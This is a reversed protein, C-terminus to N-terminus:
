GYKRPLRPGLGTLFERQLEGSWGAFEELTIQQTTDAGVLTKLRPLMAAISYTKLCIFVADQVGFDTPEDSARLAFVERKEQEILTLGNKRLADLHAGRAILSVEHGARAFWAGTLGGIAGAGVVCIRM